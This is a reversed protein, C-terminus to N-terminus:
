RAAGMGRWAGVYWALGERNRPLGDHRLRGRLSDALLKRPLFRSFGVYERYARRYRDRVLDWPRGGTDHEHLADLAPDCVVVYGQRQFHYAWEKDETGPLTEDFPHQRWLAARFGGNANDYGIWPAREFARADQHLLRGGQCTAAVRDDAFHGLHGALWRANRPYVHASLSVLVEGRAAQCGVNLAYGFSFDAPPISIVRVPFRRLTDLTGDTSGSDVAIVEFPRDVRQSFLACLVSGIDRAENKCRIVVSAFPDAM